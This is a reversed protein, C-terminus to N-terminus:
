AQKRGMPRDMQGVHFVHVHFADLRVAECGRIVHEHAGFLVGSVFAETHWSSVTEAGPHKFDANTSFTLPRGRGGGGGTVWCWGRRKWSKLSAGHCLWCGCVGGDPIQCEWQKLLWIKVWYVTWHNASQTHLCLFYKITTMSHLTIARILCDGSPRVFSSLTTDNFSTSSYGLVRSNIYNVRLKNLIFYNTKKDYEELTYLRPLLFCKTFCYIYWIMKSFVPAPRVISFGSQSEADAIRVWMLCVRRIPHIQTIGWWCGIGVSDQPWTCLPTM